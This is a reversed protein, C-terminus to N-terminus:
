PLTYKKLWPWGVTANGYEHSGGQKTCLTVSVGDACNSYTSCGNADTASASGTCQDLDAWKEFTAQAGLFTIPMGTVFSSYGGSYPVTGDGTSRFSIVPIPRSPVCAAENEEALDFAAPAAAAFIDALHCASYHTMGGGMSFGTAYVRKPDICALTKVEAVIARTFSTDDATTCCPGVNWARMNSPGNLGNPYVTIVGEPDTVAKYPSAGSEGSASGMIPHFDVLMPVASAGNYSTPVHLIYERNVGGVNITKNYDGATLKQAPCVVQETTTDRMIVSVNTETDGQMLYTTDQFGEKHFHFEPYAPVMLALSRNGTFRYLLTKGQTERIRLFSTKAVYKDPLLLHLTGSGGTVKHNWCVRGMIDMLSLHIEGASANRVELVNGYLRVELPTVAQSVTQVGVGAQSQLSFLGSADTTDAYVIGADTASVAVGQLSGGKNSTVTGQISWSFAMSALLFVGSLIPRFTNALM